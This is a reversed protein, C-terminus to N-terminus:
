EGDDVLAYLTGDGTGVYVAGDGAPTQVVAPTTTVREGVGRRWRADGTEADLAVVTEGTGVFVTGDAVVPSSSGAVGVQLNGASSLAMSRGDAVFQASGAAGPEIRIGAGDVPTRWLRDGTAADFACVAAGGVAYVVGDAVAASLPISVSRQLGGFSLSRFRPQADGLQAHWERGGSVANIAYIEDASALYVRGDAVTASWDSGSEQRAQGSAAFESATGVAADADFPVGVSAGSRLRQRDEPIFTRNPDGTEADLAYASRDGDVIYVTGDIVAPAADVSAEVEFSWDVESAAADIAHVAGSRDGVYVRGDAVTPSSLVGGGPHTEWAREGTSADIACLVRGGAVYVTGDAVAPTATSTRGTPYQWREDGTEADVAYATGDLSVAYVTGDVVVPSGALAAEADFQWRETVSGTPGTAAPQYGSNAADGHFSRWVTATGEDGGGSAESEGPPDDGTGNEESGNAPDENTTGSCGALGAVVGSGLLGLVERRRRSPPTM